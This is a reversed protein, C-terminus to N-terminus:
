RNSEGCKLIAPLSERVRGLAGWWGAVEEVELTDDTRELKLKQKQVLTYLFTVWQSM